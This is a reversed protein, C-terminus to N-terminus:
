MLALYDGCNLSRTCWEQQTSEMWSYGTLIWRGGQSDKLMTHIQKIVLKSTDMSYTSQVTPVISYSLTPSGQISMIIFGIAGLHLRFAFLIRCSSIVALVYM